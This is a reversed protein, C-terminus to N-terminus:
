TGMKDMLWLVALLLPLGLVTGIALGKLNDAFWLKWTMRNFGFREEVVFQAYLSFPLEIVSSIVIVSAILAVGYAYGPG